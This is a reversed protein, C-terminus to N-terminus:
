SKAERPTKSEKAPKVNLSSAQDQSTDGTLDDEPDGSSGAALKKQEAEQLVQNFESGQTDLKVPLLDAKNCAERFELSTIEGAQRAQLVRNFKQTKVNEEQESSLIRLPKFEIALDDPIFGFLQACRLQLMRLVKYKVKSRVQGEVMANYNEIDDEGSNFGASSIGFLKTMPMRLDSAIQSRIEKMVEAIGTFSLQKQQYDDEGDMAISNQYNKQQNALSLRRRVTEVGKDSVLSQTLGKIKFIDIKFEDLVEFTLDNSKLYQNVSRVVAEVVSLGWGRLRPRIFSPAEIGKLLLVRSKHLKIGYYNFWEVDMTNTDIAAAQDTTNQKSFFLEWMDVARFSLNDDKNMASLDLPTSPDQDTMIVVGGGGYLRNWKVGQAMTELDNEQEMEARLLDIQDESLQKSKIEVGGRFADDVPIDVLTQIVGYEVYVQSLIQRFNSVLYWRCNKFFTNLQSLQTSYGPTGIGDDIGIVDSLGNQIENQIYEPYDDLPKTAKHAAKANRMAKEYAPIALQKPKRTTKKKAAM